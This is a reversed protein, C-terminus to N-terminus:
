SSTRSPTSTALEHGGEQVHWAKARDQLRQLVQVQQAPVRLVEQRLLRRRELRGQAVRRLGRSQQRREASALQHVLRSDVFAELSTAEGANDYGQDSLGIWIDQSGAVQRLAGESALAQWFSALTMGESLVLPKRSAWSM